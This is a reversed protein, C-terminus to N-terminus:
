LKAALLWRVPCAVAGQDAYYKSQEVLRQLKDELVLLEESYRSESETGM